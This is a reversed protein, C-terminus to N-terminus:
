IWIKQVGLLPLAQEPAADMFIASRKCSEVHTPRRNGKRLGMWTAITNDQTCMMGISRGAVGMEQYLGGKSLLDTTVSVYVWATSKDM